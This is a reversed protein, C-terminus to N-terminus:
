QLEMGHNLDFGGDLSTTLFWFYCWAEIIEFWILESVHIDVDCM